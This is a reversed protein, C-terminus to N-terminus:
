KKRGTKKPKDAKKHPKAKRPASKKEAKTRNAKKSAKKATKERPTETAPTHPVAPETEARVLNRLTQGATFRPVRAAPVQMPKGTRPNRAVRAARDARDFTGFGTVVVREGAAVQRAIEDFVAEVGSRATADSQDLRAAVAAVLETKNM